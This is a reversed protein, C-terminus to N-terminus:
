DALARVRGDSRGPPVTRVAPRDVPGATGPQLGDGPRRRSGAGADGWIRFFPPSGGHAAGGVGSGERRLGDADGLVAGRVDQPRDLDLHGRRARALDPHGHTRGADVREVM